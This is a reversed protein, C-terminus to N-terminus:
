VNPSLYDTHMTAADLMMFVDDVNTSLTSFLEERYTIESDKAKIASRYKSIFYILISIFAAAAVSM